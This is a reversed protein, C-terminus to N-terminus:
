KSNERLLNRAQELKKEGEQNLKGNFDKQLVLQCHYDVKESNKMKKYVEALRVHIALWHMPNAQNDDEILNLIQHYARVANEFDHKKYYCHAFAWWMFQSGPYAEVGMKAYELADDYKGYDSLIYVIQHVALYRSYCENAIAIKIDEIGEARRDEVFPLWLLFNLKASKWYKYVGIGLYADYLGSDYELAAKLDDFSRMGNNLAAYWEGTQGQFYALYGYASGRYFYLEALESLELYDDERIKLDTIKIVRNVAELFKEKDDMNEYHTMRSNLLSAYYFSVQYTSDGSETKENLFSEAEQFRTNISYDIVTKIWHNSHNDASLVAYFLLMMLFTLIGTRIM